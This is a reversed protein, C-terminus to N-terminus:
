SSLPILNVLERNFPGTKMRDVLSEKVVKSLEKTMATSKSRACKLDNAISSDPCMSKILEPLSNAVSLSLNHQAIFDVMLAEAYMVKNTHGDRASAGKAAFMSSISMQKSCEGRKKHKASTIHSTIDFRGSHGISIDASCITCFAHHLGIRSKLICPWEQTYEVRVTQLVKRKKPPPPSSM